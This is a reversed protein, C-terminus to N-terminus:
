PQESLFTFPLFIINEGNSPTITLTFQDNLEGILRTYLYTQDSNPNIIQESLLNADDRIQLKLGTPLPRDNPTGLIFLISWENSDELRWVLSYLQLATEGLNFDLLARIATEPILLGEKILQEVVLEFLSPSRFSATSLEPTPLLLFSLSEATEDLKNQLWLAVNIVPQKLQTLINQTEPEELSLSKPLQIALPELCRLYLLLHNVDTDFWDIPIEYTLESQLRLDGSQQYNRLQDYRIVGEISVQEQEEDVAVLVYLHAIDNPSDVATKPITITADDLTGQTLLCLKFEGIKLQCIANLIKINNNQNLILEPSRQHLWSEFGLLALANLYTQWQEESQPLSNSLQAAQEIQESTLTITDLSSVTFDLFLDTFNTM